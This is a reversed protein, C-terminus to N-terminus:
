NFVYNIFDKTVAAQNYMEGKWSTIFISDLIGIVIFSVINSIIVYKWRITLNNKNSKGYFILCIVILLVIINIIIVVIRIKKNNKNRHTEFNTLIQGFQEKDNIITYKKANSYNNIDNISNKLTTISDKFKQLNDPDEINKEFTISGNDIINYANTMMDGSGDDIANFIHKFNDTISSAFKKEVYFILLLNELIMIIFLHTFGLLLIDYLYQNM